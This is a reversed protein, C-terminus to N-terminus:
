GRGGAQRRKGGRAEVAAGEVKPDPVDEAAQRAEDQRPSQEVTDHPRLCRMTVLPFNTIM